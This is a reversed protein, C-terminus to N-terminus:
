TENNSPAFEIKSLIYQYLLDYAPALLSGACGFLFTKFPIGILFWISQQPAESILICLGCILGCWFGCCQHCMVVQGWFPSKKELEERRKQFISGDVIINTMGIVSLVFLTLEIM